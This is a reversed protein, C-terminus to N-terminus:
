EYRSTLLSPGYFIRCACDMASVCMYTLLSLRSSKAIVKIHSCLERSGQMKELFEDSSCATFSFCVLCFYCSPCSSSLPELELHLFNTWVIELRTMRVHDGDGYNINM